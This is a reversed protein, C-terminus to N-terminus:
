VHRVGLDKVRILTLKEIRDPLHLVGHDAGRGM